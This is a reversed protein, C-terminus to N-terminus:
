YNGDIKCRRMISKLGTVKELIHITNKDVEEQLFYVSWQMMM